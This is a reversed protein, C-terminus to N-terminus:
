TNKSQVLFLQSVSTKGLTILTVIGLITGYPFGLCSFGAIIRCFLLSRREKMCRATQWKLAAIVFGIFVVSLGIIMFMWGLFEPPVENGKAAPFKKFMVGLFAYMLGFLSFFATIGASIKFGLSLLRLHEEDIIQRRLEGDMNLGGETKIAGKM